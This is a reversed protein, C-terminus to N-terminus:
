ADSESDSLEAGRPRPTCPGPRRSSKRDYAMVIVLTQHARMQVRVGGASEGQSWFRRCPKANSFIMRLITPCGAVIM